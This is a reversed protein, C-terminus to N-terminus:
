GKTREETQGMEDRTQDLRKHTLNRNNYIKTRKWENKRKETNFFFFSRLKILKPHPQLLYFLLSELDKDVYVTFDLLGHVLLKNLTWINATM